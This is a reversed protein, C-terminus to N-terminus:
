PERFLGLWDVIKNGLFHHLSTPEASRPRDIAQGIAMGVAVEWPKTSGAIVTIINRLGKVEAGQRDWRTDIFRQIDPAQSHEPATALMSQLGDQMRRWTTGLVQLVEDSLLLNEATRCNLRARRIRDVDDIEYPQDDRDRLSYGTANDYVANMIKNSLEEYRNLSQVDGAPCPWVRVRGQSTRVAQQWIRVDDDGEVLMIPNDNFVNSLPHAGFIPLIERIMPQIPQFEIRNARPMMFGIRSNEADLAYAIATSHSAILVRCPKDRTAEVLLQMLRHQLDPHLHVDPEDLLLWNERDRNAPDMVAECFTLIEIALSILETEGSSLDGPNRASAPALRERVGFSNSQFDRFIEVNELLDNIQAIVDDFTFNSRRVEPDIEIKRLAATQLRQFQSVSQHRFSEDRNRRRTSPLWTPDRRAAEINGQVSLEGGREPTIYSVFGGQGFEREFARLLHSKGVGNKGLLLNIKEVGILSRGDAVFDPM